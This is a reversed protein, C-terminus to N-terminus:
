LNAAEREAIRRLPGHVREPLESVTVFHDLRDPDFRQETAINHTRRPM